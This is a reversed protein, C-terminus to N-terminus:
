WMWMGLLLVLRAMRLHEAVLLLLEMMFHPLVVLLLRFPCNRM